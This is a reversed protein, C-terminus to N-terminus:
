ARETIPLCAECAEIRQPGLFDAMVLLREHLESDDNAVRNAWPWPTGGGRLRQCGAVHVTSGDKTRWWRAEALDM